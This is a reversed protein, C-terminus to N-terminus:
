LEQERQNENLIENIERKLQNAEENEPQKSIVFNIYHLAADNNGESHNLQALRLNTDINDSSLKYSQEFHRRAENYQNRGFYVGGIYNHWEINNPELQIAKEFYDSAKQHDELVYYTNALNYMAASNQPDYQIAKEFCILAEKFNEQICYANGLNYLCDPKDQKLNLATKYHNIAENIEGKMYYCNALNYEIEDNQDIGSIEEYNQIAADFNEMLYYCNALGLKSEMDFPDCELARLYYKCANSPNNNEYYILGIAKYAGTFRENIRITEKFEETAGKYDKKELLALGLQYHAKAFKPQVEIIKKYCQIAGDIDNLKTQYIKGLRLNAIINNKDLKLAHRFYKKAKDYKNQLSLTTAYEILAGVHESNKSLVSKFQKEANKIEKNQLYLMGLFFISNLNPNPNPLDIALQSFQIAKQLDGKREYAKGLGILCDYNKDDLNLANTLYSIAEDAGESDEENMLYAEGLKINLEINNPELSHAKQLNDIGQKLTNQIDTKTASDIQKNKELAEQHKINSLKVQMWGLKLYPLYNKTNCKIAESYKKQAQDYTKLKQHCRAIKLLCTQKDQTVTLLNKYHVLAQEYNKQMEFIEGLTINIKEIKFDPNLEQVKLLNQKTGEIDVDPEKLMCIYALRYYALYNKPNEQIMQHCKEETWQDFDSPLLNEKVGKKKKKPSLSDNISKKKVLQDGQKENNVVFFEQNKSQDKPNITEDGDKVEHVENKEDYEKNNEIEELTMKNNEKQKEEKSIFSEKLKQINMIEKQSKESFNSRNLDSHSNRRPTKDNISKSYNADISVHNRLIQKRKMEINKNIENKDLIAENEIENEIPPPPPSTKSQEIQEVKIEQSQQNDLEVNTLVPQANAAAIQKNCSDAKSSRREQINKDSSQQKISKESSQQKQLQQQNEKSSKESSSKQHNKDIYYGSENVEIIAAANNQKNSTAEAHAGQQTNSSINQQKNKDLNQQNKISDKQNVVNQKSPSKEEESNVESIQNKNLLMLQNKNKQNEQSESKVSAEQAKAVQNVEASNQGEKSQIDQSSVYKNQANQNNPELQKKSDNQSNNTTSIKQNKFSHEGKSKESQNLEIGVIQNNKESTQENKLQKNKDDQTQQNKKIEEEQKKKNQADLMKQQEDIQQKKKLEEEELQKKKEEMEQQKKKEEAELQKKREEAEHQKKKEEAEQLKKKEDAQQKLKLEEAEQNKKKEEAEQQRKKEEAEQQKKKEETEQQKKKEEAEQQKKKEEIEQQRKKDEAEQQNKKEDLEQQKKLQQEELQKRKEEAEQYKIKLEELEKNKQDQIEQKKKLDNLEQRYKLLEDQNKKLEQAENKKRLLEEETEKQSKLDQAEKKLQEEKNKQQEKEQKKTKKDSEELKRKKDEQEQIQQLQKLKEQELQAKQQELQLALKQKEIELKQQQELEIKERIEKELKLKREQEELLLKQKLAEQEKKKQEEDQKKKEEEMKVKNKLENLEQAQMKLLQEIAQIRSDDQITKSNNSNDKNGLALVGKSKEIDSNAVQFGSGQKKLKSSGQRELIQKNMIDQQQQQKLLSNQDNQGGIEKSNNLSNARLRSNKLDSNSGQRSIQVIKQGNEDRIIKSNSMGNQDERTKSRSSRGSGEQQSNQDGSNKRSSNSNKIVVPVKVIKQSKEGKNQGIAKPSALGDSNEKATGNPQAQQNRELSMGAGRKSTDKIEQPNKNNKYSYSKVDSVNPMTQMKGDGNLGVAQQNTKYTRINYTENDGFREGDLNVAFQNSNQLKEKLEIIKDQFEKKNTLVSEFKELIQSYIVIAKEFKKLREYILAIDIYALLLLPESPSLKMETFHKFVELAQYLKNQKYLFIGHNYITAPNPNPQRLMKSFNEQAKKEQKKEALIINLNNTAKEDFPANKLYQELLTKAQVSRQSRTLLNSYNIIAGSFYPNIKLAKEYYNMAMDNQHTREYSIALNFYIRCDNSRQQDLMEYYQIAKDYQEIEFYFTALNFLTLNNTDDITLARQLLSICEQIQDENNNFDQEEQRQLYIQKISYALLNLAEVNKKDYQILDELVKTAKGFKKNLVLEKAEKFLKVTRDSQLSHSIGKQKLLSKSVARTQFYNSEPAAAM